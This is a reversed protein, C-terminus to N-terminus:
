QVGDACGTSTRRGLCNRQRCWELSTLADKEYSGYICWRCLYSAVGPLELSTISSERLATALAAAGIDGLACSRLRLGVEARSGKLAEVLLALEAPSLFGALSVFNSPPPSLKGQLIDCVAHLGPPAM